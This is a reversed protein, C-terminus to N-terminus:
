EPTFIYNQTLTNVTKMGTFTSHKVFNLKLKLLQRLKKGEFQEDIPATEMLIQELIPMAGNNCAYLDIVKKEFLRDAEDLVM